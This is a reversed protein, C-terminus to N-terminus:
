NGLRKVGQQLLKGAEEESINMANAIEQVSMPSKGSLGFNMAVAKAEDEPLAALMEAVQASLQSEAEDDTREPETMNRGFALMEGVREESLGTDKAIDEATAKEGSASLKKLSKIVKALDEAMAAPIKVPKEEERTLEQMLRCLRFVCYASFSINDDQWGDTLTMLLLNGEQVLDLYLVGKGIYRQATWVPLYLCGEILEGIADEDGDCISYLLEQERDSSLFELEATENLYLVVPDERGKVSNMEEESSDKIRKNLEKISQKDLRFGSYFTIGEEHLEHLLQKIDDDQADTNEALYVIEELELVNGGASAKVSLSSATKDIDFKEKEM